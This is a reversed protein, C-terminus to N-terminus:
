VIKYIKCGVDDDRKLIVIIVQVMRLDERM